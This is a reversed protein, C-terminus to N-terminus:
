TFHLQIKGAIPFRRLRWAFKCGRNLLTLLYYNVM